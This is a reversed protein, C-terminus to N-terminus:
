ALFLSLEKQTYNYHVGNIIEARSQATKINTM